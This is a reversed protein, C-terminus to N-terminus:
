RIRVDSDEAISDIVPHMWEPALNKDKQLKVKTTNDLKKKLHEIHFPKIQNKGIFRLAQILIGSGKGSAALNKPTTRKLLIEQNGIKLRRGSGNTLFVIKAPIQDSLGLINAAYAGSPQLRTADRFSIAQAIKDPNPSLFGISPHKRPYEYLGRSIRRIVGKKELRHLNVRIAEPSGLDLFNKPSFCWGRGHGYIRSIIKNAITQKKM